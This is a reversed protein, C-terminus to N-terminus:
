DGTLSGTRRKVVEQWSALDIQELVQGTFEARLREVYIVIDPLEPM